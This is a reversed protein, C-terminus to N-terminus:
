GALDMRQHHSPEGEAAKKWREIIGAQRALCAAGIGQNTQPDVGSTQRETKRDTRRAFRQNCTTVSAHNSRCTEAHLPKRSLFNSERLKWRRARGCYWRM